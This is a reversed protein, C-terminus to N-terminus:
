FYVRPLEERFLVIGVCVIMAVVTLLAWVVWGMHMRYAVVIARNWYWVLWIVYAVGLPRGFAERYQLMRFYRIWYHEEPPLTAGPPWRLTPPSAIASAAALVAFLVEVCSVLVILSLGYAAARAVHALKLKALRRSTGLILLMSPYALAALVLPALGGIIMATGTWDVDGPRWIAFPLTVIDCCSVLFGPQGPGGLGRLPISVFFAARAVMALVLFMLPLGVVWGVLRWPRVEHHLRVRRWFRFPLVLWGVTRVFAAPLRGRPEHEWFGALRGYAPNLVDRCAWEEGCESCTIELPCCAPESRGWSAVEGSLDYGCRPCSPSSTSM